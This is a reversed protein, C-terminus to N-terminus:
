ATSMLRRGQLPEQRRALCVAAWAPPIYHASRVGGCGGGGGRGAAHWRTRCGVMLGCRLAAAPPQDRPAPHSRENSIFPNMPKAGCSSLAAGDSCVACHLRPSAFASTWRGGVGLHRLHRPMSPPLEPGGFCSWGPCDNSPCHGGGQWWMLRGSRHEESLGKVRIVKEGVTCIRCDMALFACCVCHVLFIAGGEQGKGGQKAQARPELFSYRRRRRGVCARAVHLASPMAAPQRGAPSEVGPQAEARPPGTM